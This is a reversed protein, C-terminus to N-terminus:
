TAQEPNEIGYNAIEILTKPKELFQSIRELMKPTDKAIQKLEMDTLHDKWADNWVRRRPDYERFYKIGNKDTHCTELEDDHIGTKDFHGYIELNVKLEEFKEQNSQKLDELLEKALQTQLYLGNIHREIKLRNTTFKRARPISIVAWNNEHAWATVYSLAGSKGSGSRGWLFCGTNFAKFSQLAYERM